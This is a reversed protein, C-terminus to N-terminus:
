IMECDDCGSDGGNDGGNDGNNGDDNGTGSWDDMGPDGARSNNADTNSGNVTCGDLTGDTWPTALEDTQTTTVSSGDNGTAISLSTEEEM